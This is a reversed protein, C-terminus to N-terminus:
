STSGHRLGNLDTTRVATRVEVGGTVAEGDRGQPQNEQRELGPILRPGHTRLNAEFM